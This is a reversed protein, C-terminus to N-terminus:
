LSHRYGMIILHEKTENGSLKTWQLGVSLSVCGCLTLHILPMLSHKHLEALTVLLTFHQRSQGILCQTSQSSWDHTQLASLSGSSSSSITRDRNSKPPHQACFKELLKSSMIETASPRLTPDFSVLWDVFKYQFFFEDINNFNKM